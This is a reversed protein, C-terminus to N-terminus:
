AAQSLPRKSLPILIDVKEGESLCVLLRQCVCRMLLKQSTTKNFCVICKCSIHDTNKFERMKGFVPKSDHLYASALTKPQTNKLYRQNM